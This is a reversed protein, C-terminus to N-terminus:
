VHECIGIFENIIQESQCVVQICEVRIVYVFVDIYKYISRFCPWGPMSQVIVCIRCAEDNTNINGALGQALRIPM